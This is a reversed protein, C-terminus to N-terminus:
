RVAREGAGTALEYVRLRYGSDPFSEESRLRWGPDTEVARRAPDLWATERAWGDRWAAGGPRLGLILIANVDRSKAAIEPLRDPAADRLAKDAPRPVDRAEFGAVARWGEWELLGPSFDNWYGVLISGRAVRAAEAAARVVPAVASPVDNEVLGATLRGRDVPTLLAAVLAAPAACALVLDKSRWRSLRRSAAAMGVAATLWLLPVLPFLFRVLKFPHALTGALGLLFAVVVPRQHRPLHPLRVVALATLVLCLAGPVVGPSFHRLFADPYFLLGSRTWLSPGASRNELVRVFGRAHSPSLMWVAIPLGVVLAMTRNRPNAERFWERVGAWSRRPRVLARMLVLCYLIYAPTAVSVSRSTEGTPDTVRGGFLALGALGIGYALLFLSWPRRWKSSRLGRTVKARVAELSGAALWVEALAMPVLWALGYNFKTFFLLVAAACALAFDRQAGSRVSRVYAGVALLLLLAGPIELMVMMGFLQFFPSTAIAAAVLAGALDGCGDDLQRGAWFGALICLAFLASMLAAATAYTSGFTAFAPAEILPFVPGWLDLHAIARAVDAADLARASHALRVGAAGFRAMDWRPLGDCTAAVGVLTVAARLALVALLLRTALSLAQSLLKPFRRSM